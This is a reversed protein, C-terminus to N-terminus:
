RPPTNSSSLPLSLSLSYSPHHCPTHASSSVFIIYQISLRPTMPQTYKHTSPVSFLPLASASTLSLTLYLHIHPPDNKNCNHNCTTHVHISILATHMLAIYNCVTLHQCIPHLKMNNLSIAGYIKHYKFTFIYQYLINHILPSVLIVTCSSPSTTILPKLHTLSQYMSTCDCWFFLFNHLMFHRYLLMLCQADMWRWVCSVGYLM